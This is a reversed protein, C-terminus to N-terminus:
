RGLRGRVRLLGEARQGRGKPIVSMELRILQRKVPKSTYLGVKRKVTRVDQM